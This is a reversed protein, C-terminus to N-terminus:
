NASAACAPAGSAPLTTAAYADTENTFGCLFLALFFCLRIM